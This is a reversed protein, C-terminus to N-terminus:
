TDLSWTRQRTAESIVPAPKSPPLAAVRDASAKEEAAAIACNAPTTRGHLSLCSGCYLGASERACCQCTTIKFRSPKRKPATM